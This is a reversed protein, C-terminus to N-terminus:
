ESVDLRRQMRKLQVDREWAAVVAGWGKHAENFQGAFHPIRQILTFFRNQPLWGVGDGM